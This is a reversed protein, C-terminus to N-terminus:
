KKLMRVWGMGGDWCVKKAEVECEGDWCLCFCLRFWFVLGVWLWFMPPPAKPLM